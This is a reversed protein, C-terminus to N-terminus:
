HARYLALQLKAEEHVQSFSNCVREVLEPVDVPELELRDPLLQAGSMRRLVAECRDLAERAAGLDPDTELEQKRALRNIRLKATNLPTAFEHSLGACGAFVELSGPRFHGSLM